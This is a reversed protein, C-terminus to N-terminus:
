EGTINNAHAKGLISGLIVELIESKHPGKRNIARVNTHFSRKQVKNM